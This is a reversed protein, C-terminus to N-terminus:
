SFNYTDGFFNSFDGNDNFEQRIGSWNVRELHNAILGFVVIMVVLLVGGAGIGSARTGQRRAQQHEIIKMVGWLILLIPWYSAFLHALKGVSLVRMTGLLFVFGIIILVLPGAFSRHRPPPLPPLPSFQPPPPTAVPNSM